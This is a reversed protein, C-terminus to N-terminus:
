LEGWSVALYGRNAGSNILDEDFHFMFHGNFTVSAAVCCGVFDYDSSGGGNLSLSASPAYLTGTFAANGSLSISTNSPLGFYTLNAARGGDVTGNGGITFNAAAIYVTLQGANNGSGAVLVKDTGGSAIKVRVHANTNVYISGGAPLIYDGSTNFVYDYTKAGLSLVGNIIGGLINPPALTTWTAADSPLVVQPFDSNFDTYVKGSVQNSAGNLTATPGLFVDGSVNHNGLDLTGYLVAVDGNTSTKTSDYRGGTSLNTNSSDFSNATLGNGNMNINTRAALSVNYLPVNTTAVYVVRAMTASINPVTVYGTSYITPHVADTFVVSYTGNSVISRSVPGYRGNVATGWGNASRDVAITKATAGPNLQALAEEVGAEAMALAGNWSQSRSVSVYQARVLLLYSGLGILIATTIFLSVMLVGGQDHNQNRVRFQM